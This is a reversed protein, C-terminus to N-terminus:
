ATAGQDDDLSPGTYKHRALNALQEPSFHELFDARQKLYALARAYAARRQIETGRVAAPDPIAWYATAPRGPWSPCDEGRTEECLNIVLDMVPADPASFENWSKSRLGETSIGAQRLVDLALPQVYGLPTSGASFARLHSTNRSRLCAEAIISRASNGKCLFLINFVRDSMAAGRSTQQIKAFDGANRSM